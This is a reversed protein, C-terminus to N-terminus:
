VAVRNGGLYRVDGTENLYTQERKKALGTKEWLEVTTAIQEMLRAAANRLKPKLTTLPGLSDKLRQSERIVITTDWWPSASAWWYKDSTLAQDLLLRAADYGPDDHGTEVANIALYTLEWQLKHIQNNPHNWLGFPIGARVQGPLSSWSSALPAVGEDRHLSKQFESITMTKVGTRTVLQEWLRDVGHRHHGLNEGDMATILASQGRNDRSVARWADDPQNIDASFSLYDSVPRNRVVIGLGAPGRYRRDFNVTGLQGGLAVEDILVWEYGLELLLPELKESYAMEPPFFGRPQYSKGFVRRHLEHQLMIQRRIEEEPLLPLIPHYMASDVLELQGREMLSRLDELVDELGMAALQETLSATINVTIHVEPHKRLIRLVPRYSEEAVQRVVDNNWEPPQYIHFFNVWRM